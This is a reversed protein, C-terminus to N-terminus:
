GVVPASRALRWSARPIPQPPVIHKFASYGHFKAVYPSGPTGNGYGDLVTGYTSEVGVAQLYYLKSLGLRVRPRLSITRQVTDYSASVLRLRRDDRTGLKKDRGPDIIVYHSLDSASTADLPQNFNLIVNTPQRGSGQRSQSVIQLSSSVEVTIPMSSRGHDPNPNPEHAVVEATNVLTGVIQPTVFIRVTARNGISLNGLSATVTSGSVDVSGQSTSASVYTLGAPLPNTLVVQTADSPGNNTVTLEITLPLFQQAPTPSHSQTLVLDALARNVLIVQSFHSYYITGMGEIVVRDPLVSAVRGGADVMLIDGTASGEPGGIITREYTTAFTSIRDPEPTGLVQEFIGNLELERGPAVTQTLTSTLDVTIGTDVTGFDLHNDGVPDDVTTSSGPRLEADYVDAGPGADMHDHTGESAFTNDLNDGLLTNTTTGGLVDRINAISGTLFSGTGAALNVQAVASCRSLDVTNIGGQGDISGTLSVGDALAFWDNGDGGRLDGVFSETLNFSDAGSGGQYTGFGQLELPSSSGSPAYAQTAGLTWTADVDAGAIVSPGVGSPPAVILDIGRFGGSFSLAETGSYGTSDLGTLVVNVASGFGSYNLTDMGAQGDLTGVLQAAGLFAFFDDGTGGNLNATVQQVANGILQFTDKGTGGQLTAFRQFALTHSGDWYTPADNLTWISDVDRGVLTGGDAPGILTSIGSFTGGLFSATGSFGQAISGSLTVSAGAFNTLDLSNSGSGGATITGSLSAG